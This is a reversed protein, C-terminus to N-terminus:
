VYVEDPLEGKDIYAELAAIAQEVSEVPRVAVCYGNEYRELEQNDQDFVVQGKDGCYACQHERNYLKETVCLKLTNNKLMAEVLEQRTIM